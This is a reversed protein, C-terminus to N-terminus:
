VTGHNTDSDTLWEAIEEDLKVRSDGTRAGPVEFEVPGVRLNDGPGLLREGVIRSDNVHTGNSSGLDRVMIGDPTSWLACHQRSIDTSFLRIFCGEDRGILVEKVPVVIQKGKHKGTQIVLLSM